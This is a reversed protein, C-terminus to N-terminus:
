DHNTIKKEVYETISALTKFNTFDFDDDSIEISFKNELELMLKLIDSSNLGCYALEDDLGINNILKEDHLLDNLIERINDEISKM